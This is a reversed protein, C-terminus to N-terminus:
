RSWGWKLFTPWAKAWSPVDHKGDPLQLYVMDRGEMYGKTLLERMLDITDDISDIVGNRNRDEKEDKEGCQFFFKLGKKYESKRVLAHIIRDTHQNFDKDNKDRSRWWLSGSFVGIKSFVEPNNWSIDFASLAGLSFGAYGIESFRIGTFYSAIEPLLETLIFSEYHAAKAGRGEHDPSTSIGYENMRDDSCHIGVCILSRLTSNRYQENLIQQFNMTELDQGDNILLLSVASTNTMDEPFYYDILVERRLIESYLETQEITVGTSKQVEM